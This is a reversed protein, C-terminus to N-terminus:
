RVRAIHGLWYRVGFSACGLLIGLIFMIWGGITSGTSGVACSMIGTFILIISLFAFVIQLLKGFTGRLFDRM